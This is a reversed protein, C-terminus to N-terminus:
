GRTGPKVTLSEGNVSPDTLSDGDEGTEVLKESDVRPPEGRKPELALKLEAIVAADKERGLRHQERELDFKHCLAEVERLKELEMKMGQGELERAARESCASVNKELEEVTAPEEEDDSLNIDSGAASDDSDKDDDEDDSGRKSSISANTVEMDTNCLSGDPNGLSSDDM